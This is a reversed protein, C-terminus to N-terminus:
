AKHAWQQVMTVKRVWIIDNSELHSACTKEAM